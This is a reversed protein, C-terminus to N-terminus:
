TQRWPLEAAKWGNLRNRRGADDLDGEFGHLINMTQTWGAEEAAKAAALSRGGSRCLFMVPTNQSAIAQALGPLFDPNVTMKPWVHWPLHLYRNGVEKLDPGGVYQLEPPTRVDVLWADGSSKILEWADAPQLNVVM